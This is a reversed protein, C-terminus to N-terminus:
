CSHQNSASKPAVPTAPYPHAGVSAPHVLLICPSFAITPHKRQHYLSPQHVTASSTSSFQAKPRCASVPLRNPHHQVFQARNAAKRGQSLPMCAYFSLCCLAKLCLPLFCPLHDCLPRASPVTLHLPHLFTSSCPLAIQAQHRSHNSGTLCVLRVPEGILAKGKDGSSDVLRLDGVSAGTRWRHRWGRGRSRRAAPQWGCGRRRAGSRTCGPRQKARCPSRIVFLNALRTPTSLCAADEQEVERVPWDSGCAAPHFSPKRSSGIVEQAMCTSGPQANGCCRAASNHHAAHVAHVAPVAPVAHMDLHGGGGPAAGM